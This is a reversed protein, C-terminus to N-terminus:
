ARFIRTDATRSRGLGGPELRLGVTVEVRTRPESNLQEVPPSPAAAPVPRDSAAPPADALAAGSLPVSRSRTWADLESRFAYVSGLKDHLHRRVPMGERREWRQVTTVDRKLYAAIEKWSDLRDESAADEPPAAGSLLEDM